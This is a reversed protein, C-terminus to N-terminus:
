EDIVATFMEAIRAHGAPTPHICTPDFYLETDPGRYCENDPDDAHFGHGCFHELMFIVDTQTEVATQVFRENIRLYADRLEPITGSFGFIEATPCSDM